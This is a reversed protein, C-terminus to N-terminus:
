KEKLNMIKLVKLATLERKLSKIESNLEKILEYNHQINGKHEEMSNSVNGAVGVQEKVEIFESRIQKIWSDINEVFQKTEQDM